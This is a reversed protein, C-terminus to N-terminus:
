RVRRGFLHEMLISGAIAVNLSEVGESLRIGATFSAMAKVDASLGAGENGLMLVVPGAADIVDVDVGGADAALLLAGSDRLLALHRFGKFVNLGFIYGASSRIVKPSWPDASDASFIINKFGFAAASRILTGINGPDQIRDFYLSDAAVPMEPCVPMGFVAIVPYPTKTSSMAAM